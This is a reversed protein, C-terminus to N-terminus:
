RPKTPLLEFGEIRQQMVFAYCRAHDVSVRRECPACAIVYHGPKDPDVFCTSPQKCSACEWRGRLIERAEREMNPNDLAARREHAERVAEWEADQRRREEERKRVADRAEREVRDRELREARRDAEEQKHALQADREARREEPTRQRRPQVRPELHAAEGSEEATPARALPLKHDRYDRVGRDIGDLYLSNPDFLDLSRQGNRIKAALVEAYGDYLWRSLVPVIRFPNDGRFPHYYKRYRDKAM